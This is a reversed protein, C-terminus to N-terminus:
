EEEQFKIQKELRDEEELERKEIERAIHEVLDREFKDRCSPSCYEEAGVSIIFRGCERCRPPQLAHESGPDGGAFMEPNTKRCFIKILNEDNGDLFFQPCGIDCSQCIGYMVKKGRLPADPLALADDGYEPFIKKSGTLREDLEKTHQILFKEQHDENCFFYRGEPLTADCYRCYRPKTPKM